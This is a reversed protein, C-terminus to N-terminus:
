PQPGMTSAARNRDTDTRPDPDYGFESWGKGRVRRANAEPDYRAVAIGDLVPELRGITELLRYIAVHRDREAQVLSVRANLLEQEANLVDLIDRSGVTNEQKVGEAALSSADVQARSSEIIAEATKLITWNATAAESVLRQTQTITELQESQRAQAQRVRASALGGTLLPMSATVGVQPVFGSIGFFPGTAKTYAGTAQVGVTPLRERKATLVDSRAAQEDLKSAALLPNTELAMDRAQQASAPVPPLPPLPALAGPARGVLREYAQEAQVLQGRASILGAQASALRAESQAVDTRTLDGVEFRDRSAQLQQQLVKVQNENLRVFERARLLDAYATVTDVIVQYEVSLLRARAAEIRAEAASLDSRIRGGQWIAQNLTIGARWTQGLDGFNETMNQTFSGSLAASPRTGSAILPVSEDIQRLQARAAAVQPNGSYAAAIADQLTEASVPSVAVLAAPVTALLIPRM